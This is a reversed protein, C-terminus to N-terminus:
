ETEGDGKIIPSLAQRAREGNDEEIRVYPAYKDFILKNHNDADAYWKLAKQLQSREKKLEGHLTLSLLGREYQLREVEGILYPVDEELVELILQSHETHTMISQSLKESNEKDFSLIKNIKSKIQEIM